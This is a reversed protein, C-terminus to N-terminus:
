KWFHWWKKQATTQTGKKLLKTVKAPPPYGRWNISPEYEGMVDRGFNGEPTEIVIYYHPKTVPLAGLRQKALAATPAFYVEYEDKGGDPRPM